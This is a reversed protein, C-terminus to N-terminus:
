TDLVNAAFLEDMGMIRRTLGQQHSYKAALDLTVRNKM